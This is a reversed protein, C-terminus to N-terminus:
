TQNLIVISPFNLIVQRSFYSKSSISFYKYCPIEKLNPNIYRNVSHKESGNRLKEKCNYETCCFQLSSQRLDTLVQRNQEGVQNKSQLLM